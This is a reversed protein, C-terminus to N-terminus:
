WGGGGGGGFGGGSFGGGFSGGGWASRGQATRPASAFTREMGSSLRILSLAFLDGRFGGGGGAYWTPPERLLGEFQKTWIRTLNLAIAYPLLKEFLRPSKEPADHFEIRDVEARRIYESLGLIDSLVRAGKKTKRPMIPSFALIVLGSLGVAIGLYLSAAYAGLFVGFGLILTGLVAYFRRVREPNHPYYGKDILRGYLRSKLTPLHQYFENELSSLTREDPNEDDFIAALLEEEVPSLGESSGEGRVFRYDVPESRGFLSRARDRIKPEEIPIEEIRLFGKVALEVVMASIDRLDIRDDILVGVEGASLGAPPEFAPPIIGPRPDRGVRYWLVIMGILTLVPLFALKNLALFRAIREGLSPPQIPLLDRPISVDITLGEGPILKGSAFNLRGAEDIMGEEGRTGSGYYGVYSISSVLSPDLTDPLGLSATAREIPIRWDNGTVNWYLQLYDEHFLLVHSATYGITYLHTGTITRDPDGIRILEERGRRRVTYPVPLGDMRVDDLHFDISTSTGVGPTRYSVPIYREIGHHPTLFTVSISEVVRLRGEGTLDLRCDFSDIRLTGVAALSLAATLIIAGLAFRRM